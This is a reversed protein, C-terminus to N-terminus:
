MVGRRGTRAKGGKGDSKRSERNENVSEMGKWVRTCLIKIKQFRSAETVEVFPGKEAEREDEDYEEVM